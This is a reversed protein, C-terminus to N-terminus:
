VWMVDCGEGVPVTRISIDTVDDGDRNFATHPLDGFPDGGFPGSRLVTPREREAAAAASHEEKAATLLRLMELVQNEKATRQQEMSRLQECLRVLLKLVIPNTPDEHANPAMEELQQNRQAIDRSLQAIEGKLEAIEEKIEAREKTLKAVRENVEAIEQEAKQVKKEKGAEERHPKEPGPEGLPMKGPIPEACGSGSGCKGQGSSAPFVGSGKQAEAREPDVTKLVWRRITGGCSGHTVAHPQASATPNGAGSPIGSPSFAAEATSM